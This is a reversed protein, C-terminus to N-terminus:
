FQYKATVTQQIFILSMGAYYADSQRAADLPPGRSPMKNHENIKGNTEAQSKENRRQRAM